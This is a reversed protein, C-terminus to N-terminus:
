QPNVGLIKTASQIKWLMLKTTLAGFIIGLATGGGALQFVNLTDVPLMGFNTALKSKLQTFIAEMGVITVVAFGLSLLIKAILPQALSLIWTGLKM